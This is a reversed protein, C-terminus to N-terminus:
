IRVTIHVFAGDGSFDAYGAYGRHRFVNGDRPVRQDGAIGSRMNVDGMYGAFPRYVNDPFGFRFAIGHRGFDGHM